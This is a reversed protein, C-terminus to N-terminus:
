RSTPSSGPVGQRDRRACRPEQTRRSGLASGAAPSARQAGNFARSLRKIRGISRLLTSKIHVRTGLDFENPSLRGHYGRGNGGRPAKSVARTSQSERLLACLSRCLFSSPGAQAEKKWVELSVARDRTNTPPASASSELLAAPQGACSRPPCPPPPWARLLSSRARRGDFGERRPASASALSPQPQDGVRASSIRRPGGPCNRATTSESNALMLLIVGCVEWV